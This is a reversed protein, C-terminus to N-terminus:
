INEINNSLLYDLRVSIQTYKYATKNVTMPLSSFIHLVYLQCRTGQIIIQHLQAISRPWWVDTGALCGFTSVYYTIYTLHEYNDKYKYETNLEFWGPIFASTLVHTLDTRETYSSSDFRYLKFQEEVPGPQSTETNQGFPCHSTLGM